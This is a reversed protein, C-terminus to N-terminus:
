EQKRYEIICNEDSVPDEGLCRLPLMSGATCEWEEGNKRLKVCNGEDDHGFPAAKWMDMCCAGCKNCRVSKIYVPQDKGPEKYAVLETNAYVKVYADEAWDPIDIKV